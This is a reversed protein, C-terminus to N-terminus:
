IKSARGTTRENNKKEKRKLNRQKIRCTRVVSTIELYSTFKWLWWYCEWVCIELTPSLFGNVGQNTHSVQTSSFGLGSIKLIIMDFLLSLSPSKFNNVSLDFLRYLGYLSTLLGNLVKGIWFDKKSELFRISAPLLLRALFLPLSFTEM